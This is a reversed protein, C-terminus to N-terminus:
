VVSKRDEKEGSYSVVAGVHTDEIGQAALAAGEAAKVDLSARELDPSSRVAAGIVQSLTLTDDAVARSGFALCVVCTFLLVRM